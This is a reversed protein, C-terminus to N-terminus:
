PVRGVTVNLVLLRVVFPAVSIKLPVPKSVVAALLVTVKLLPVPVTVAAVAVWNVTVKLVLGDRPLKVATTVVLPSLLPLETCTAVTTLAAFVGVKALVVRVASPKM